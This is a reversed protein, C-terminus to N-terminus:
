LKTFLDKLLRLLSRILLFFFVPICIIAVAGTFWSSPVFVM